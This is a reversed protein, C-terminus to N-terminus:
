WGFTFTVETPSGTLLSPSFGGVDDYAFGCALNDISHDRWFKAFYNAPQGAPYFAATNHWNASQEVVHCNLAACIQARIEQGRGHIEDWSSLKSNL